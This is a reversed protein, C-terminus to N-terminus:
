AAARAHSAYLTDLTAYVGNTALVDLVRKGKEPNLTRTGNEWATITVPSAEMADALAMVTM